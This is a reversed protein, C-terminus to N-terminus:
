RFYNKKERTDQSHRLNRNTAVLLKDIPLYKSSEVYLTTMTPKGGTESPGGCQLFMSFKWHVHSAFSRLNTYEKTCGNLNCKIAHLDSGAHRSIYHNILIVLHLAAFACLVCKWAMNKNIMWLRQLHWENSLLRTWLSRLIFIEMRVPLHFPGSLSPIFCLKQHFFVASQHNPAFLFHFCFFRCGVM